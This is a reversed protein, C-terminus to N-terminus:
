RKVIKYVESKGDEYAVNLFYLGTKLESVDLRQLTEGKSNFQHIKSGQINYISLSQQIRTETNASELYLIGSTPNPYILMRKGDVNSLLNNSYPEFQGLNEILYLCADVGTQITTDEWLYSTASILVSGNSLVTYGYGQKNGGEILFSDLVNFEADMLLTNVSSNVHHTHGKYNTTHSFVFRNPNIIFKNSKLAIADLANVDEIRYGNTVNFSSFSYIGATRKPYNLVWEGLANKFTHSGYSIFLLEDNSLKEAGLVNAEIPRDGLYFGWRPTEVINLRNDLIFSKERGTIVVLNENDDFYAPYNNAITALSDASSFTKMGDFEWNETLLLAMSIGGFSQESYNGLFYLKGSSNEYVNFFSYISTSCLRKKKILNLNDDYEFLNLCTYQNASAGGNDSVSNFFVLINGNNLIHNQGAFQREFPQLDVDISDKWKGLIDHQYLVHKFTVVDQLETLESHIYFVISTNKSEVPVSFIDFNNTTVQHILTQGSIFYFNLVFCLFVFGRM